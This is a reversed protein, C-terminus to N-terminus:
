LHDHPLLNLTPNTTHRSPCLFGFLEHNDNCNDNRDADLLESFSRGSPKPLYSLLTRDYQNMEESDKIPM